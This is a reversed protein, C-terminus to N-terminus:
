NGISKFDKVMNEYDKAEIRDKLEFIERKLDDLNIDEKIKYIEAEKAKEIVASGSEMKFDKKLKSPIQKNINSYINAENYGISHNNTLDWHAIFRIIILFVMVLLGAEVLTFLSLGM